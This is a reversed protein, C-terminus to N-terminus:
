KVLAIHEYILSTVDVAVFQPSLTYGAPSFWTRFMILKAVRVRVTPCSEQTKFKVWGRFSFLPVTMPKNEDVLTAFMVKLPEIM